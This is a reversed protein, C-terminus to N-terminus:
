EEMEGSGLWKVAENIDRFVMGKHSLLEESSLEFFRNMGFDFDSPAVVAVTPEGLKDQLSKIFMPHSKAEEMSIALKGLRQDILIKPSPKFDPSEVLESMFQRYEEISIKGEFVVNIQNTKTDISYTYM